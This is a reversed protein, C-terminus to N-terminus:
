PNLPDRHYREEPSTAKLVAQIPSSATHMLRPRLGADELAHLAEGVRDPEPIVILVRKKAYWGLAVNGSVMRDLVAALEKDVFGAEISFARAEELFRSLRPEELLRALRPAALSHLRWSLKAHMEATTTAKGTEAAIVTVSVPISEVRALGPAGPSLRVELGRGYLMSVVDGLGTGAEVEAVHALTAVHELSRGEILLPLLAALASAASAAYGYGLPVPLRLVTSWMSAGPALRYAELVVSPTGRVAGPAEIRLGCRRGPGCPRAEAVAPPSLLLGAGLSGTSLPDGTRMPLWLGTVHLPVIMKAAPKEEQPPM